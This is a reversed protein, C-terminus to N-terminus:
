FATATGGHQRKLYSVNASNREQEQAVDLYPAFQDVARDLRGIAAQSTLKGESFDRDSVYVGTALTQAEFFSFLPRLQHEIVLAHKDGGGTAALLIPKGALWSPDFLDFLHKFLGPYSGKYVPSAIVLAKAHLIRSIIHRAPENLDSFSRANGLDSGFQSLDYVEASHRFRAVARGVADEVLIRTKSPASFSGSIGVIVPSSM